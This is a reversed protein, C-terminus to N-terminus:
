QNKGNERLWKQYHWERRAYAIRDLVAGTVSIFLGTMIIAIAAFAGSPGGLVFGLGIMVFVVVWGNFGNDTM